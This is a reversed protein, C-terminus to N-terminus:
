YNNMSRDNDRMNYGINNFERESYDFLGSKFPRLTEHYRIGHYFLLHLFGNTGEFTCNRLMVADLPLVGSTVIQDYAQAKNLNYGYTVFALCAGSVLLVRLVKPNKLRQFVLIIINLAFFITFRTAPILVGGFYWPSFVILVLFIISLKFELLKHYRRLRIFFYAVLLSLIVCFAFDFSRFMQPMSQVWQYSHFPMIVAFLSYFVLHKRWVFPMSYVSYDAIETSKTCEYQVILMIVPLFSPLLRFVEKYKKHHYAYISLFLLVVILAFLHSLYILLIAASFVYRNIQLEKKELIVILHLALGLGFCYNMFGTLFNLNFVFYFAAIAAVYPKDKLHFSLYSSIGSYISVATAFLFLKGALLSSTLLSLCGIVITSIANPPLYPHMHFFGNFTDGHFVYQNFLYGHYVWNPYDQLPLYEFGFIYIVIFSLFLIHLNRHM